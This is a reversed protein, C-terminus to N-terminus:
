IAQLNAKQRSNIDAILADLEESNDLIGVSKKKKAGYWTRGGSSCQSYWMYLMLFVLFVVFGLVFHPHAQVLDTAKQKITDM